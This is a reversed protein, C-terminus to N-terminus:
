ICSHHQLHCYVYVFMPQKNTRPHEQTPHLERTWCIHQLYIGRTKLVLIYLDLRETNNIELTRSGEFAYRSCSCLAPFTPM